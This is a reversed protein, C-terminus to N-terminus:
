KNEENPLQNIFVTIEEIATKGKTDMVKGDFMKSLSKMWHFYATTMKRMESLSLLWVENKTFAPINEMVKRRLLSQYAPKQFLYIWSPFFVLVSSLVRDAQLVISGQVNTIFTELSGKEAQHIDQLVNLITTAEEKTKIESCVFNWGRNTRVGIEYEQTARSQQMELPQLSNILYLQKYILEPSLIESTYLINKESDFLKWQMRLGEVLRIGDILVLGNIKQLKSLQYLYPRLFLKVDNRTMSAPLHDPIEICFLLEDNWWVLISDNCGEVPDYEKTIAQPYLYRITDNEQFAITIVDDTELGQVIAEKIGQYFSNLCLENELCAQVGSRMFETVQLKYYSRVRNASMVPFQRLTDQLYAIEAVTDKGYRPNTLQLPQHDYQKGSRALLHEMTRLRRDLNTADTSVWTELIKKYPNSSDDIYAQWSSKEPTASYATVGNLIDHIGPVNYLTQYSYAPSTLRTNTRGSNFSFFSSVNAVQALYDAMLQEFLTLYGKLQKIKALHEKNTKVKGTLQYVAPFDYQISYYDSVKRFDGKPIITGWDTKVQQPILQQYYYLVKDSNWSTIRKTNQVITLSSLSELTFVPSEDFCFTIESFVSDNENMTLGTVQANELLNTSLLIAGVEDARISQKKSVICDDAIYGGSLVAGQMLDSLSNSSGVESVYPTYAPFPSLWANLKYLMMAITREVVVGSQIDISGHLCLTKSQLIIPGNFLQGINSYQRLILAVRKRLDDLQKDNASIMNFLDPKCEVFVMTAGGSTNAADSLYVQKIQPLESLVFKCFDLPTVPNCTYAEQPTYFHNAVPITGDPQTLLNQIPIDAKNGLETLAYCLILLITIGPDSDNYNTWVSGSYAAIQKYGTDKLAAYDKYLPLTQDKSLYYSQNSLEM